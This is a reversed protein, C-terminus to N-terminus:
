GAFPGQVQFPAASRLIRSESISPPTTIFNIRRMHVAPMTNRTKQVTRSALGMVNEAEPALGALIRPVTSANRAASPLRLGFTAPENPVPRRSILQSPTGSAAEEGFAKGGFKKLTLEGRPTTNEVGPVPKWTLAFAAEPTGTLNPLM